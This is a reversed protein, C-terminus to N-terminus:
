YFTTELDLVIKFIICSLLVQHITTLTVSNKNDLRRACFNAKERESIHDIFAKLASLCGPESGVIERKGEEVTSHSSLFNSVDDLLYQLVKLFLFNLPM